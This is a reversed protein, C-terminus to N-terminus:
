LIEADASCIRGGAATLKVYTGSGHIELRGREIARELGAGYEASTGKDGSLFPGNLKEIYIGGVPTWNQVGFLLDSGSRGFTM